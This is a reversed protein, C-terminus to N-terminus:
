VEAPVVYPKRYDRTLMADAEKDAPISERKPDFALRRGLTYQTKDLSIGNDALHKEFRGFTEYTEKDDGFAKTKPDFPTPKGLRYSVNGLHCLAASLHGEFVDANLPTGDRVGDLFNNFHLTDGGGKFQTVLKKDNDFVAAHDYSDVVMYGESGYFIIGVGAGLLRETKLGRVEFILQSDGYDHFVLQTNPTEGDDVYGFRGGLSLVNPALTDKNLGWRAVDMQHVGQNGLDGNGYDWIWHWDYHFKERMIPKIPAPGSWLDYDIGPPVPQPGSVKGISGRSKYCLGRALHVKGLKGDHLYKMAEIVGPNSRIQTGVQCVRNYKRSAEVAKRGEFVNHSLPKEVYVHKGAQMAWIAALSHWHNTTAISVVDISKDDFIRRMDQEFRPAQGTSKDIRDAAGKNRSSDVDCVATIVVGSQKLFEGVHSGVGRGGCGIVATQITENPGFRRAPASSAFVQSAGAAASAAASAAFLSQELFQRRTTRSM